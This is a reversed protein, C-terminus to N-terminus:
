ETPEGRLLGDVAASIRKWAVFGEMDGAELLRDGRKAAEQRAAEGHTQVLLEAVQLIYEDLNTGSPM